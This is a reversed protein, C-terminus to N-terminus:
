FYTDCRLVKLLSAAWGFAGTTVCNRAWALLASALGFYASHNRPAMELASRFQEVGQHQTNQLSNTNPHM